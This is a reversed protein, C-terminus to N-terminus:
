GRLDTLRGRRPGPLLLSIQRASFRNAPDAGRHRQKQGAYGESKGLGGGPWRLIGHERGARRDPVGIVVADVGAVFPLLISVPYKRRSIAVAVPMEVGGLECRDLFGVGCQYVCIETIEVFVLIALDRALLEDILRTREDQPEVPVAVAADSRIFHFRRGGRPPRLARSFPRPVPKM